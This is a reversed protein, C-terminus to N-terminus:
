PHCLASGPDPFISPWCCRRRRREVEAFPRPRFSAPSKNFIAASRNLTDTSSSSTASPITRTRLAGEFCIKYVSNTPPRPKRVRSSWFVPFATRPAHRRVRLVPRQPRGAASPQTTPPASRQRVILIEVLSNAAGPQYSGVYHTVLRGPRGLAPVGTAHAAGSFARAKINQLIVDELADGPSVMFILFCTM